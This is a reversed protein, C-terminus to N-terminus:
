RTQHTRAMIYWLYVGARPSTSMKTPNPNATANGIRELEESGMGGITGVAKKTEAIRAYADFTLVDSGGCVDRLKALSIRWYTSFVVGNLLWSPRPPTKQRLFVSIGVQAKISRMDNTAMDDKCEECVRSLFPLEWERLAPRTTLHLIRFGCTM